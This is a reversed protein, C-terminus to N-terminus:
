NRHRSPINQFYPAQEPDIDAGMMEAEFYTDFLDYYKQGDALVVISANEEDIIAEVHEELNHQEIIRDLEVKNAKLEEPSMTHDEDEEIFVISVPEASAEDSTDPGQVKAFPRKADFM